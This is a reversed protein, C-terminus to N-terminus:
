YGLELFFTTQSFEMLVSKIINLFLFIKHLKPDTYTESKLAIVLLYLM